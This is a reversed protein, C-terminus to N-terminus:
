SRSLSGIYVKAFCRVCPCSGFLGGAWNRCTVYMNEEVAWNEFVESVFYWFVILCEQYVGDVV